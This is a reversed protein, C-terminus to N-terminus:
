SLDQNQEIRLELGCGVDEFKVTMAKVAEELYGNRDAHRLQARTEADVSHTLTAIMGTKWPQLHLKRTDWMSWLCYFLGLAMALLPLIMYPWEVHIHIVWEGGVGLQKASSVDRIWNSVTWAVHDFTASLNTSQYLAQVTPTQDSSQDGWFPWAMSATLLQRNVLHTTSGVTHETVNFRLVADDPMGYEKIAEQPIFLQLDSRDFDGEGTYLSYNNWKEYLDFNPRAQTDQYSSFDREAWSAMIDEKLIGKEVVSRYANTCFYLACETASVPTDDWLLEGSEYGAVAKIVEVATIMTTLNNFSITLQPDTIVTAAMYASGANTRHAGNANTLNLRPLSHAMYDAEVTMIHSSITGLNSGFKVSRQLHSTVDSCASCVALSTFVPWTCNATPCIFSTTRGVNNSSNYFGNNFSSLMGLDPLVNYTELRVTTNSPTLNISYLGSTGDKFYSGVDLVESRGLQVESSIPNADIQGYFSIVTQLFPEFGILIITVIAGIAVWHCARVWIILWLSGWPGRSADDFRDFAVLNDARRRFWNWKAQGLCSSIAFALSTRSIAGLTSVLTNLSLVSNWQALSRGDAYILLAVLTTIAGLSLVLASIEWNWSSGRKSVVQRRPQSPSSLLPANTNATKLTPLSSITSGLPKRGVAFSYPSGERTHLYTQDRYEHQGHLSSTAQATSVSSVNASSHNLGGRFFPSTNSQENDGLSPFAM